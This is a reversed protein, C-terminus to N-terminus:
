QIIENHVKRTRVNHFRYIINGSFIFFSGGCIPPFKFKWKLRLPSFAAASDDVVGWVRRTRVLSSMKLCVVEGGGGDRQQSQM